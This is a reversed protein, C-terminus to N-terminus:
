HPSSFTTALEPVANDSSCIRKNCRNVELMVSNYSPSSAPMLALMLPISMSKASPMFMLTNNNGSPSSGSLKERLCLAVSNWCYMESWSSFKMRKLVLRNNFSVWFSGILRAPNIASMARLIPRM